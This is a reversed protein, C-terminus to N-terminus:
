IFMEDNHGGNRPRRQKEFFTEVGVGIGQLVGNIHKLPTTVAHEVKTSTNEVKDLTRTVMEDVRIGQLRARDMFATFQAEVQEAKARATASLASANDIILEVKPRTTALMAQVETTLKKSDDLLPKVREEMDTSLAEMRKSLRFMIAFMGALILMQLVVAAATVGIFITLKDDM